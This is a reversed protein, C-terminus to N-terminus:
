KFLMRKLQSKVVVVLQLDEWGFIKALLDVILWHFVRSM